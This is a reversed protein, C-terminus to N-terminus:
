VLREVVMLRFGRMTGVVDDAGGLSLRKRVLAALTSRAFREIRGAGVRQRRDPVVVDAGGELKKILEILDDPSESFDAQITVAFDRKPRDTRRITERLLVELSRAYGRRQRHNILTLPLARMYPALVDESADTSGDNVVVLQYERNFSTFLQRVK